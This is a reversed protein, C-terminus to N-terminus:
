KGTEECVWSTITKLKKNDKAHLKVPSPKKTARFMCYYNVAIKMNPSLMFNLTGLTRKKFERKHMTSILDELRDM